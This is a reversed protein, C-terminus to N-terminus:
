NFRRLSSLERDRPAIWPLKLAAYIAEESHAIVEGGSALGQYPNWHTGFRIARSCLWINHEKSGTRCLLLSGWTHITACFIDLQCKPLQILFNRGDPKDQGALWQARGDQDAVYGTLFAHLPKHTSQIAGLLDLKYDIKCLVVLDVDNCNPRERRISGAVAIRECYPDLWKVLKDAYATARSLKMSM